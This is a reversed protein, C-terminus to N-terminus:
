GFLESHTGTRTFIVTEKKTGENRVTYLLLWDGAIHCDRQDQWEGQLPHDMYQPPLPGDNAIVLLMVKKLDQMKYRGSRALREWDKEFQSTCDFNRVRKVTLAM